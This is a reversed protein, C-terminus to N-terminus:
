RQPLTAAHAVRCQHRAYRLDKPFGAPARVVRHRGHFVDLLAFRGRPNPEYDIKVFREGRISPDAPLAWFVLAGCRNCPRAKVRESM